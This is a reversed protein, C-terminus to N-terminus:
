ETDNTMNLGTKDALAAVCLKPCIHRAKGNGTALRASAKDSMDQDGFIAIMQRKIAM